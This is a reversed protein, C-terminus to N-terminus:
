EQKSISLLEIQKLSTGFGCNFTGSIEKYSIEVLLSDQQFDADLNTPHCTGTELDLVWGCGDVAIDGSYRVLASYTTENKKCSSIVSLSFLVIFAKVFNHLNNIKM